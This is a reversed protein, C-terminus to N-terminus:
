LYKQVPVKSLACCLYYYVVSVNSNRQEASYIGDAGAVEDEADPGGGVGVGV